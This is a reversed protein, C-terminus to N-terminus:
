TRCLFELAKVLPHYYAPDARMSQFDSIILRLAWRTQSLQKASARGDLQLTVAYRTAINGKSITLQGTAVAADDDPSPPNPSTDSVLTPLTPVPTVPRAVPAAATAYAPTSIADPDKELARAIVKAALGWLAPNQGTNLASVWHAEADDLRGQKVLDFIIPQNIAPSRIGLTDQFSNMVYNYLRKAFFSLHSVTQAQTKFHLLTPAPLTFHQPRATLSSCYAM